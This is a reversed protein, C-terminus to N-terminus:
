TVLIDISTLPWELQMWTAVILLVLSVFILMGDIIPTQKLIQKNSYM